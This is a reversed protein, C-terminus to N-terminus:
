KLRKTCFWRPFVGDANRSYALNYSVQWFMTVTSAPKSLSLQEAGRSQQRPRQSLPQAHHRTRWAM